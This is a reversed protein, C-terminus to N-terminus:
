LNHKELEMRIFDQFRLLSQSWKHLQEKNIPANTSSLKYFTEQCKELNQSIEIFMKKRKILAENILIQYEFTSVGFVRPYFIWVLPIYRWKYLYFAKNKNITIIYGIIDVVVFLIALTLQM